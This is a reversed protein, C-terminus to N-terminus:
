FPRKHCLGRVEQQAVVDKVDKPRYKEVWIQAKSASMRLNKLEFTIGRLYFGGCSSIFPCLFKALMRARPRAGSTRGPLSSPGLPRRPDGQRESAVPARGGPVGM